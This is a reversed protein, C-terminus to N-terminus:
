ASGLRDEMFARESDYSLKYKQRHVAKVSKTEKNKAKKKKQREKEMTTSTVDSVSIWKNM